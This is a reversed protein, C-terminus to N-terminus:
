ALDALQGQRSVAEPAVAGRGREGERGVALLEGDPEIMAEADVRGLLGAASAAILVGDGTGGDVTDTEGGIAAKQDGTVTRSSDGEPSQGGSALQTRQGAREASDGRDG